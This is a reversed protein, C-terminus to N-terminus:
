PANKSVIHHYFTDTFQKLFVKFHFADYIFLPYAFQSFGHLAPLQQKYFAPYHFGSLVAVHAYEIWYADGDEGSEQQCQNKATADQASLEYNATGLTSFLFAILLLVGVWQNFSNQRIPEINEKKSNIM